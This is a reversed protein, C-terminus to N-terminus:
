QTPLIWKEFLANLEGVKLVDEAFAFTRREKMERAARYFTSLAARSLSSGVSIRKVGMESLEDLNLQVGQLGMIVNVPRDVSRVVAVVEERTKLGPAFLVDAGAEQFAQLRAITDRLDPRGIIYNEARATLTFSYPMSHAAQAAARVREAAVSLEYPGQGQRGPVDEISCGALGAKAALRVTDAAGDPDDAYCNELDASVPLDTAAVIEVAHALMKERGVAGDPRGISFAFGASTTALAEFGLTELLRATGVDWPNPIIFAHDRHHLASFTEAKEAQTRM